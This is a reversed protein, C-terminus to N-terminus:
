PHEERVDSPQPSAPSVGWLERRLEDIEEATIHVGLDAFMGIMSKRREHSAYKRRLEQVAKLVEPRKDPPIKRLEELIQDEIFGM